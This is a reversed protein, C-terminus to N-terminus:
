VGLSSSSGHNRVPQWTSQGHGGRGYRVVRVLVMGVVVRVRVVVQGVVMRLVMAVLALMRGEVMVVVMVRGVYCHLHGGHDARAGVGGATGAPVRAGARGVAVQALEVAGVQLLLLLLMLLIMVLLLLLLLEMVLLLLLVVVVLLLVLVLLLGKVLLLVMRLLLLMLM